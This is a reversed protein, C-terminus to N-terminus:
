VGGLFRLDDLKIRGEYLAKGIIIGSVGLARLKEVDDLCSIGGSAILGIGPVEELLERYLDFAPGALMGDKSIDTCLFQKAEIKAYGQVFEVIEVESAKEWGEVRIKRDLADACLVIKGAGFRGLWSEVLPRAKIAISGLCAMAAGCEFAIGLDKESRIGGGFDIVLSTKSAIRELLNYSVVRGQRAGDLDVLHLRRLGADEFRRAVDLPDESYSKKQAFDGQVLRVCKGEIIDIAPIIMGM